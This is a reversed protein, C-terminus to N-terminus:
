LTVTEVNNAVAEKDEKFKPDNAYKPPNKKEFGEGHIWYYSVRDAGIWYM